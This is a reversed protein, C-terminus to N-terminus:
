KIFKFTEGKNITFEEVRKKKKFLLKIGDTTKDVQILKGKMSGNLFPPIYFGSFVHTKVVHIKKGLLSNFKDFCERKRKHDVYHKLERVQQELESIRKNGFM